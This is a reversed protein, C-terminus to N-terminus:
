TPKLAGVYKSANLRVFFSEVSDAISALAVRLSDVSQEYALRSQSLSAALETCPRDPYLAAQVDCYHKQFVFRDDFNLDLSSDFNIGDFAARCAGLENMALHCTALELKLTDGNLRCRAPLEQRALQELLPLAETHRNEVVFACARCLILLEPLSKVSLATNLHDSSAAEAIWHVQNDSSCDGLARQSRIRSIGVAVRNFLITGLSLRDQSALASNRAIEYWVKSARWNGSFQYSTALVLAIRLVAHHQRQDVLGTALELHRAM